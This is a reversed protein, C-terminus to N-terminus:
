GGANVAKHVEEVKLAIEAVTEAAALRITEAAAVKKEVAAIVMNGALSVHVSREAAAKAAAASKAAEHAKIWLTIVGVIQAVIGGLAIWAADSM